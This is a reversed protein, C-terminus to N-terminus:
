MPKPTMPSMPYKPMTEDIRAPATELPRMFITSYPVSTYDAFGGANVQDLEEDTLLQPGQTRELTSPQSIPQVEMQSQGWAELVVQDSLEPGEAFTPSVGLLLIGGLLAGLLHTSKVGGASLPLTRILGSATGMSNKFPVNIQHINTKM